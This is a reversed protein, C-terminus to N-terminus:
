SEKASDTVDKRESSDKASDKAYQLLNDKLQGEMNQLQKEADRRRQRGDQQIKLTENLTDVLDQQTKQLTEIDVVSRENEKATEISSIKLMESNKKLLDNTTESVAKQAEVADHQRMLTLAIAVQNKWLPIATNVSSQIKDALEQNTKQILRIQPAQQLSIERATTLDFVRKELRNEFAVLDQVNQTDMQNGSKEAKERAEPILKNNLEDQKMKGAAIYVNLADFYNKNQKFLEDLMKNDSALNDQSLKLEGAISDIQVGMKQYKATVEMINKKAKNFLRQFINQNKLSLEEPNADDIRGMLKTLADGIEGTDRVSVKNLMDQSFNSLKQQTGAGYDSVSASDSIDIKEAIQKALTKQKDTLENTALTSEVPKPKEALPHNTEMPSANLLDEMTDVKLEPTEETSETQETVDKIDESM